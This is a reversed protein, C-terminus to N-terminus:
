TQSLRKAIKPQCIFDPFGTDALSFDVVLVRLYDLDPEGCQRKELKDLLKRGWESEATDEPEGITFFSKSDTSRTPLSFRIDREEVNHYIEQLTASLWVRENPGAFRRQHGAQANTVWKAAKSQLDALWPRVTKEDGVEYAYFWDMDKSTEIRLDIKFGMNVELYKFISPILRELLQFGFLDIPNYVEICARLEGITLDIDYHTSRGSVADAQVEPVNQLHVLLFFERLAQEFQIPHTQQVVRKGITGSSPLHKNLLILLQELHEYHTNGLVRVIELESQGSYPIKATSAVIPFRQMADYVDENIPYRLM